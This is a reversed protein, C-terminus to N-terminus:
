DQLSDVDEFYSTAEKMEEPPIDTEIETRYWVTVKEDFYYTQMTKNEQVELDM